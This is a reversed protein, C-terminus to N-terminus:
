ASARANNDSYTDKVIIDIYGDNLDLLDRFSEVLNTIVDITQQTTVGLTNRVYDAFVM